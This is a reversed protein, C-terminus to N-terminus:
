FVVKSPAGPAREFQNSPASNASKLSGAVSRMVGYYTGFAIPQVNITVQATNTADPSPKGLNLTQVVANDSARVLDLEYSTVTAHDTSVVFQVTTPNKTTTSQAHAAAPLALLAAVILVFRLTRM